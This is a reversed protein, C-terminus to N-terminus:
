SRLAWLYLRSGNPTRKLFLFGQILRGMAPRWDQVDPLRYLAQYSIQNTWLQLIPTYTNYWM